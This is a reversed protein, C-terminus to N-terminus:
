LNTFGSTNSVGVDEGRDNRHVLLLVDLAKSCHKCVYSSDINNIMARRFEM